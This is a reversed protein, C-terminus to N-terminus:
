GHNVPPLPQPPAAVPDQPGKAELEKIDAEIESCMKLLAERARADLIAAALRRCHEARGRMNGIVRIDEETVAASIGCRRGREAIQRACDIKGVGTAGRDRQGMRNTVGGIFSGNV